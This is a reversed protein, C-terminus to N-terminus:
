VEYAASVVKRLVDEGVGAFEPVRGTSAADVPAGDDGLAEGGRLGGDRRGCGFVENVAHVAVEHERAVARDRDQVVDLPHAVPLAKHRPRYLRPLLPPADKGRRTAEHPLSTFPRLRHSVPPINWLPDPVQQRVILPLVPSLLSLPIVLPLICLPVPHLSKPRKHASLQPNRITSNGGRRKRIVRQVFKLDEFKSFLSVSSKRNPRFIVRWM